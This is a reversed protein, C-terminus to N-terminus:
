LGSVEIALSVEVVEHVRRGVILNREIARLNSVHEREELLAIGHAHEPVLVRHDADLQRHSHVECYSRGLGAHTTVGDGAGGLRSPELGPGGGLDWEEYVRAVPYPHVGAGAVVDLPNRTFCAVSVDAPRGELAAALMADISCAAGAPLTRTALSTMALM